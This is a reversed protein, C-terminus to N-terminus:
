VEIGKGPEQGAQYAKRTVGDLLQQVLETPTAAREVHENSSKKQAERVHHTITERIRVKEQKIWWDRAWADRPLQACGQSAYSLSFQPRRGHFRQAASRRQSLRACLATVRQLMTDYEPLHDVASMYGLTRSLDYSLGHVVCMTRLIPDLVPGLYDTMFTQAGKRTPYIFLLSGNNPSLEVLRDVLISPGNPDFMNIFENSSSPPIYREVIGVNISSPPVVPLPSRPFSSMDEQYDSISVASDFVKQTFYDDGGIPPGPTSPPSTPIDALNFRGPVAHFVNIWTM